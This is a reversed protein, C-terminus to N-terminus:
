TDGTGHPDQRASTRRVETKRRLEAARARVGRAAEHVLHARAKAAAALDLAHATRRRQELWDFSDM